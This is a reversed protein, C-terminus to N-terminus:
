HLKKCNIHCATKTSIGTLYSSATIDELLSQTCNLNYHPNIPIFDEYSLEPSERSVTNGLM